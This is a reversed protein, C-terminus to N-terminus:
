YKSANKQLSKLVKIHKSDSTRVHKLFEQNKFFHFKEFDAIFFIFFLFPQVNKM